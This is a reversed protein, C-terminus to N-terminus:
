IWTNGETDYVLSAYPILTEEVGSVKEIRVSGTQVDLRRAADATLTVRTPQSGQLHEVQVPAVEHTEEPKASCSTILLGAVALVVWLQHMHKM